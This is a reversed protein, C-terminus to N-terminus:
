LGVGFRNQRLSDPINEDVVEGLEALKAEVIKMKELAALVDRPNAQPDTLVKIQEHMQDHLYDIAQMTSADM